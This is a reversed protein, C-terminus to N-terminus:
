GCAHLAMCRRSRWGGAPYRQRCRHEWLTCRQSVKTLSSFVAPVAAGLTEVASAPPAASALISAALALGSFAFLLTRMFESEKQRKGM